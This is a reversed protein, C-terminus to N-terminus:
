DPCSDLVDRVLCLVPDAVVRSYVFIWISTAIMHCLYLDHYIGTAMTMWVSARLVLLTQLLGQLYIELLALSASFWPTKRSQNLWLYSPRPFCRPRPVRLKSACTGVTCSDCPPSWDVVPSRQTICTWQKLEHTSILMNQTKRSLVCMESCALTVGFGWVIVLKQKTEKVKKKKNIETVPECWNPINLTIRIMWVIRWLTCYGCCVVFPNWIVAITM